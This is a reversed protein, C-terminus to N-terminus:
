KLSYMLSYYYIVFQSGVIPHGLLAKEGYSDAVVLTGLQTTGEVDSGKVYSVSQNGEFMFAGHGNKMIDSLPM